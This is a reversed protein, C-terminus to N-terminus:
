PAAARERDPRPASPRDSPVCPARGERPAGAESAPRRAGALTVGAGPDWRVVTTAGLGLMRERYKLHAGDSDNVTRTASTVRVAEAGCFPCPM